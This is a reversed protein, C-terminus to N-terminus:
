HRSCTVGFIGTVRLGRNNKSDAYKVAKLGACAEIDAESAHNIIHENYQPSPIFIGRGDSLPPDKAITSVIANKARFNADLAIFMTRQEDFHVFRPLHSSDVPFNIGPHPCAGCPYALEGPATDDIGNPVHARSARAYAKMNRVQRVSRLFVRYRNPPTRRTRNETLIRLTHYLDYAPVKGFSNGTLFLRLLSLTVATRPRFPTSPYWSCRILQTPRDPAGHCGCFSVAVHHIGNTHLVTFKEARQPFPCSSGQMHNLQVSLGLAKLDIQEFFTGNWKEIWHLPALKHADICCDRCVLGLLFCDDDCCRYLASPRESPALSPPCRHCTESAGRRGNLRVYEALYKARYPKWAQMPND